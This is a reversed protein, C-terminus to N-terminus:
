IDFYSLLGDVSVGIGGCHFGMLANIRRLAEGTKLFRKRDSVPERVFIVSGWYFLHGTLVM